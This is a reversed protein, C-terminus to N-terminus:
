KATGSKDLKAKYLLTKVLRTPETKLFESVKEITTVGPTEVETIPLKKEKPTKTKPASCGAM